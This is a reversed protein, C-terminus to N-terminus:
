PKKRKPKYQLAAILSSHIDNKLNEATGMANVISKFDAYKGENGMIEFHASILQAIQNKSKCRPFSVYGASILKRTLFAITNVNKNWTIRNELLVKLEQHMHEHIASCKIINNIEEQIYERAELMGVITGTIQEKAIDNLNKTKCKILCHQVEMPIVDSNDAVFTKVSTKKTDLLAPKNKKWLSITQQYDKDSMSTDLYKTYSNSDRYYLVQTKLPTKCIDKTPFLSDSVNIEERLLFNIKQITDYKESSIVKEIESKREQLYEDAYKRYDM